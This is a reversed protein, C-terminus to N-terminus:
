SNLHDLLLDSLLIGAAARNVPNNYFLNKGSPHPIMVWNRRKQWVFPPEEHLMARAVDSGLLIVTREQIMTGLWLGRRAAAKRYDKPLIQDSLLNVRQTQALWDKESVGSIENAMQWLRWGASGRVRTDLARGPEPSDPNNLGLIYPRPVRETM